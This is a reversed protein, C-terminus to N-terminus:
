VHARGIEINDDADNLRYLRDHKNNFDYVKDYIENIIEKYPKIIEYLEVTVTLLNKFETMVEDWGIHKYRYRILFHTIKEDIGYNSIYAQIMYLDEHIANYEDLLKNSKNSKRIKLRLERMEKRFKEEEENYLPFEYVLNSNNSNENQNDSKLMEGRGTLLWDPNIDPYERVIKEIIHSGINAKNARQKALYGNSVSIKKSFENVSISKYDIIKYIREIINEM